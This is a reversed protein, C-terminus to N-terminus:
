LLPLSCEQLATADGGCLGFEKRGRDADWTSYSRNVRQMQAKVHLFSSTRSSYLQLQARWFAGSPFVCSTSAWPPTTGEQDKDQCICSNYLDHVWVHDGDEAFTLLFGCWVVYPCCFLVIEYISKINELLAYHVTITMNHTIKLLLMTKM